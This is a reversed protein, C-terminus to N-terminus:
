FYKDKMNKPTAILKITSASIKITISNIIENKIMNNLVFSMTVPGALLLNIEKEYKEM